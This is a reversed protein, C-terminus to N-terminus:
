VGWKNPNIVINCGINKVYTMFVNLIALFVNFIKLKYTVIVGLM